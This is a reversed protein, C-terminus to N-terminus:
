NSVASKLPLPMAADTVAGIKVAYSTQNEIDADTILHVDLLGDSQYGTRQYNMEALRQSWAELWSRLEKEQEASGRFHVLIDIDSGVGATANKTSGFLYLAVVAFKERDLEAAIHRAMRM